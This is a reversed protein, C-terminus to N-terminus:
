SLIRKQSKEQAESSLAVKGSPAKKKVSVGLKSM